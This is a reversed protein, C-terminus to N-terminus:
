YGALATLLLKFQAAILPRAKGGLVITVGKGRGGRSDRGRVAADTIRTFVDIGERFGLDELEARRRLGWRRVPARKRGKGANPIGRPQGRRLRTPSRGALWFAVAPRPRGQPREDLELGSAQRLEPHGDLDSGAEAQLRSRAGRDRQPHCCNRLGMRKLSLLDHFFSKMNLENGGVILVTKPMRTGARKERIPCSGCVWDCTREREPM